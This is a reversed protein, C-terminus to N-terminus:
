SIACGPVRGEVCAEAVALALPELRRIAASNSLLQSAAGSTLALPDCIERQRRGLYRSWVLIALRRADAVDRRRARSKLLGVTVGTASAVIALLTDVGGTWPQLYTAEPCTRLPLAFLEPSLARASGVDVPGGAAARLAPVSVEIGGGSFFPDKSGDSLSRVFDHFSLRGSPTSSYGCLALGLEVNLWRPAEVAGLYARHSTWDSDAPDAVVGARVPNNHIYALLPALYEGEFSVSRYRDAFVPGLREEARNLRTAFGSHVPRLVSDGSAFGARMAHHVHSSMLSYSLADWDSRTLSSALRKLYDARAGPAALRWEKNVFRSILHQVTGPEIHRRLRSM